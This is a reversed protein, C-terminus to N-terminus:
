ARKRRLALETALVCAALWAGGAAFGALVDSFYHVGLLIRSAGVWLVLLMSALVVPRHWRADVLRLLVWALMGYAVLSGLAHGSPLSSGSVAIVADLDPRPRQLLAKATRVLLGAGVLAVAWGALVVWQRRAALVAAMAVGIGAITWPDGAHTLAVLVSRGTASGDQELAAALAHDFRVLAGGDFVGVVLAGFVLVGVTIALLAVVLLWPAVCGAGADRPGVSHRPAGHRRELVHWAVLIVVAVVVTLGLLLPLALTAVLQASREILM